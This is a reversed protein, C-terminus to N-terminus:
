HGSSCTVLVGLARVFLRTRVGARSADDAESRSVHAGRGRCQTRREERGSPCSRLGGWRARAGQGGGRETHLCSGPAPGLENRGQGGTGLEAAGWGRRGLWTDM